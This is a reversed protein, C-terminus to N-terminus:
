AFTTSSNFRSSRPTEAAQGGCCWSSARMKLNPRCALSPACSGSNVTIGANTLEKIPRDGLAGLM